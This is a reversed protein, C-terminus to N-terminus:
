VKNYEIEYLHADLCAHFDSKRTLTCKQLLSMIKKWISINKPHWEFTGSCKYQM